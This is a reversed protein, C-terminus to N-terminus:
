SLIETPILPFILEAQLRQMSRYSEPIMHFYHFSFNEAMINRKHKGPSFHKWQIAGFVLLVM